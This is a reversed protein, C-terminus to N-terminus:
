PLLSAVLLAGGGITGLAGLVIGAVAQGKRGIPPHASPNVRRLGIISLVLGIPGLGLLSLLFGARAITNNAYLDWARQLQKRSVPRKFFLKNRTDLFMGLLILTPILSSGLVVGVAEPASARGGARIQGVAVLGFFLLPLVFLAVRAWARGFFYFGGVGAFALSIAGDMWRQDILSYVGGAGNFLAAVGVGWAWLDRRGWYKLRFAELYDVEPRVACSPCFVRRELPRRDEDCIFAGCRDCTATSARDPHLSCMAGTAAASPTLEPPGTVDPPM